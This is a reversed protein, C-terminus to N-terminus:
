RDEMRDRHRDAAEQAASPDDCSEIVLDCDLCRASEQPGCERCLNEDMTPSGCAECWPETDDHSCIRHQLGKAVNRVHDGSFTRNAAETWKLKVQAIDVITAAYARPFSLQMKTLMDELHDAVGSRQYGDIFTITYEAM